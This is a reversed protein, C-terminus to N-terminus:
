GVYELSRLAELEADTPAEGARVSEAVRLEWGTAEAAQEATAGPHLETLALEGAAPDPELVGLDTIVCTVGAGPGEGRGATTRFDLREV